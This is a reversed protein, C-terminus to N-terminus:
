LGLIKNVEELNKMFAQKRRDEGTVEIPHCRELIRSYIRKRATQDETMTSLTINTTIIMPLKARYRGDIVQYVIENVFETNREAALDDIVLLEFDNLSDIYEQRGDFSNQIKNVIRSFSTMLVPIGKNIIENAICAATFTKGTGTNGFLILGKGQARFQEYHECYARAAKIIKPQQGDDAEFTYKSYESKEFGQIRLREVRQRKKEREEELQKRKMEARVCSCYVRGIREEGFITVREQTADGCIDCHLLGDSEIHETRGSEKARQQANAEAKAILNDFIKIFDNM